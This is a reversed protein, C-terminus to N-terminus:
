MAISDASIRSVFSGHTTVCMSVAYGADLQEVKVELISKMVFPGTANFVAAACTAEPFKQAIDHFAATVSEPQTVDCAVSYADGGGKRIEEEIPALHELKRALLVTTYATAFRRAISAGLGTGVGAVIALPKRAIAAAAPLDM